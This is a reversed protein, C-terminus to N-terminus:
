QYRFQAAVNGPEDTHDSVRVCGALDNALHM